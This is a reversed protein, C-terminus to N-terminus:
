RVEAPGAEFEDATANRMNDLEIKLRKALKTACKKCCIGAMLDPLQEAADGFNTLITAAFLEWARRALLQGEREQLKLQEHTTKIRLQKLQEARIELNLKTAQSDANNAEQHYSEIWPDTESLFFHYKRKTGHKPLGLRIWNQVSKTSVSYRSALPGIGNIRDDPNLKQKAAM